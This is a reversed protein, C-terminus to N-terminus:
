MREVVDAGEHTVFIILMKKQKQSCSVLNIIFVVCKRLMQTAKVFYWYLNHQLLCFNCKRISPTKVFM